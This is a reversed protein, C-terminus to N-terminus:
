NNFATNLLTIIKTRAAESLNKDNSKSVRVIPAGQENNINFRYNHGNILAKNSRVKRSESGLLIRFKGLFGSKEGEFIPVDKGNYKVTIVDGSPSKNLISFGMKNLIIGTLILSRPYSDNVQLVSSGSITRVSSLDGRRVAGVNSRPEEIVGSGGNKLSVASIVGTPLEFAKDFEPKTLDPPIELQKVSTNNQYDVSGRDNLFGGVRDLTSCASLGFLTVLVILISLIKKQVNIM